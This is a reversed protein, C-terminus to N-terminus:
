YKKLSPLFYISIYSVNLTITEQNAVIDLNCSTVIVKQLEITYFKTSPSGVLYTYLYLGAILKGSAVASLMTNTNADITKIITIDGFTPKGATPLM